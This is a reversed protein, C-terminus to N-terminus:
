KKARKLVLLIADSGEKSAFETPRDGERSWCMTLTDGELRYIGRITKPGDRDPQVDIAAPKREPALTYTAAEGRTGEKVTIKDDQIVLRMEKIREAPAQKGGKTASEVKWTGQLKARDKKAADEKADAALLVGAAVLMLVRWKM